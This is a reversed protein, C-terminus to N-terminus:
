WPMAPLNNPKRYYTIWEPLEPKEYVGFLTVQLTPIEERLKILAELGCKTGKRVEKSYLMMISDPKRKQIPTQIYFKETDIAIPAYLPKKASYKLVIEELYNAIVMHYIPLRYSEHVLDEQGKWIEYDQILNFPKGKQPSLESIAYAMQWWTCLVIDGDPVYQDKIEPVIISRIEKHLSFWSPRSVNRLKYIFQKVWIPTKTKKFPRRIAHLVIVEHGRGHLRNAYEYMIKAGGVPKTVPFPLIITIRMSKIILKASLLIRLFIPLVVNYIKTLLYSIKM